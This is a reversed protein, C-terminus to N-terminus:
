VFDDGQSLEKDAHTALEVRRSGTTRIRNSTNSCGSFMKLRSPRGIVQPHMLLSLVAGWSVYETLSRKGCPRSRRLERSIAPSSVLARGASTPGTM